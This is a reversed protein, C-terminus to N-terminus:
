GLLWRRPPVAHTLTLLGGGYLDYVPRVEDLIMSIAKLPKDYRPAVMELFGAYQRFIGKAETETVGNSPKWQDGNWPWKEPYFYYYLPYTAATLVSVGRKEYHWIDGGIHSVMEAILILAQVCRVQNRLAVAEPGVEVAKPLYGEPHIEDDIIHQYIEIGSQVCGADDLVIGAATNAATAWLSETIALETSTTNLIEVKGAFAELWPQIDASPHDRLLEICQALVLIEAALSCLPGEVNAPADQWPVGIDSQVLRAQLASIARVGAASDNALRSRLGEWQMSALAGAPQTNRLYEWASQFPPRNKHQQARRAHEDTFYLGYHRFM